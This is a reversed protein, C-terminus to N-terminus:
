RPGFYETALTDFGFEEAPCSEWLFEVDIDAAIAEAQTMFEALGPQSFRLLGNTAKIKSRKGHISEVQLSTTNDTMINGVKFSGDEEYFINM